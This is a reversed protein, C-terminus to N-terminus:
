RKTYQKGSTYLDFVSLFAGVPFFWTLESLPIRGFLLKGSPTGYLLWTEKLYQTGISSILLLYVCFALSVFILGVILSPKFLDRRQTVEILWGIFLLVAVAFVSNVHFIGYLIWFLIAASAAYTLVLRRQQNTTYKSEGITHGSIVPYLLFTIACVSAGFIVDEISIHGKGLLTQPRWYDRYDFIEIIPGGIAGSIFASISKHRLDKRLSLLLLALTLFFLSYYLYYYQHM